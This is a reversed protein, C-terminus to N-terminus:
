GVNPATGSNSGRFLAVLEGPHHLLFEPAHSALVRPSNFGWTVAAFRVRAKKAATLDRLEDGVFLIESPHLSFTRMIARLNRTKGSLGPVVSVFDFCDLNNAALFSAVNALSNSTLIGLPYVRRRLARVAEPMGDNPPVRAVRLGLLRRTEAIVQPVRLRSVNLHRIMQGTTMDRLAGIEGMTIRNFNYVPALRNLIRMTEPLTNAVTGDFDLVVSCIERGHKMAVAHDRGPM